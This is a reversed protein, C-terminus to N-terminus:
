DRSEAQGEGLVVASTRNTNADEICGRLRMLDHSPLAPRIIGIYVGDHMRNLTANDNLAATSRRCTEWLDNAALQVVQLSDDGRTEVEFVMTTSAADPAHEPRTQTADALTSWLPPVLLLGGVATALARTKRGARAPQIAPRDQLPLTATVPPATLAALRGTLRHEAGPRITAGAVKQIVVALGSLAAGAVMLVPVFVFTRHTGNLETMDASSLWTFRNSAPTRTQELRKRVDDMRADSRELRNELRSVQSLLLVTALFVEVVLLLVGSILARQWEWRILYLVTYYGAYVASLGGFAYGLPKIAKM